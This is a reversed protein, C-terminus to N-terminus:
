ASVEGDDINVTYRDDLDPPTVDYDGGLELREVTAPEPQNEVM